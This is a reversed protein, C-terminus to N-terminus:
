ETLTHTPPQAPIRSHAIADPQTVDCIFLRQSDGSVSISFKKSEPPADRATVRITLVYHDAPIDKHISSDHCLTISNPKCTDFQAIHFYMEGGHNLHENPNRVQLSLPLASLGRPRPEIAIIEAKVNSVAHAGNNIIRVSYREWKGRLFNGSPRDLDPMTYSGSEHFLKLPDKHKFELILKPAILEALAEKKLRLKHFAIFQAFILGVASVSIWIWTPIRHNSGSIKLIFDIIAFANGLVILLWLRIVSVVYEKLSNWMGKAM